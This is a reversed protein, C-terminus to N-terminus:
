RITEADIRDYEKHTGVFKVYGVGSHYNMHVVLRYKNGCINFVVRNDKIFSANGYKSKIDAPTKWGAHSAEYWWAELMEKADRFQPTEYFQILKKRSIIRM